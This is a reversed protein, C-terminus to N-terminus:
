LCTQQRQPVTATSKGVGSRRMVLWEGAGLTVSKSTCVGADGAMRPPWTTRRAEADISISWASSAGVTRGLPHPCRSTADVGRAPRSDM